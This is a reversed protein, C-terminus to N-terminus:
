AYVRGGTFPPPPINGEKSWLATKYTTCWWKNVDNKKAYNLNFDKLLICNMKCFAKKIISLQYKFKERQSIGNQLSFSWYVNILRTDTNGELDIIILNSHVGELETRRVYSLTKSMYFCVRSKTCNQEIELRYGSINLENHNIDNM